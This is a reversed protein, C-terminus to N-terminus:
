PTIARVCRVGIQSSKNSGSQFSGSSGGSVFYQFWAYLNPSYNNETSSWYFGWLGGIGNAALNSLINQTHPASETGCGSDVSANPSYYGLECIAPLYWDSYGFMNQRCLGVAYTSPDLQLAKYIQYTNGDPDISQTAPFYYNGNEISNANTILCNNYPETICGVSSDWAMAYAQDTLSLVKGGISNNGPYQSLEDNISFLYGGQYVCGYSLVVVNIRIAPVNKATVTIISPIALTGTNCNSSANNGPNISIVCSTAPLLTGKCNSTASTGEPWNPYHINLDVATEKGVNQITISRTNGELANNLQKNSVSLALNSVSTSITTRGLVNKLLSVNENAISLETGSLCLFLILCCKIKKNM